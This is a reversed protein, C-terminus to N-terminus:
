RCGDATRMRLSHLFRDLLLEIAPDLDKRDVLDVWDGGVGSRVEALKLDGAFADALEPGLGSAGTSVAAVM